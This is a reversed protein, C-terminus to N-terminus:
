GPLLCSQTTKALDTDKTRPAASGSQTARPGPRRVGTLCTHSVRFGLGSLRGAWAQNLKEKKLNLCSSYHNSKVRCLIYFGGFEWARSVVRRSHRRGGDPKATSVVKAACQCLDGSLRSRTRKLAVWFRAAPFLFPKHFWLLSLLWTAHRKIRLPRCVHSTAERSATPSRVSVVLKKSARGGSDRM